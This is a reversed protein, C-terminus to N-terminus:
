RQMFLMAFHTYLSYNYAYQSKRVAKSSIVGLSMRFVTLVAMNNVRRSLRPYRMKKTALPECYIVVAEGKAGQIQLMRSKQLTLTLEVLKRQYSKLFLACPM